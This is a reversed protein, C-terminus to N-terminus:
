WRMLRRLQVGRDGPGREARIVSWRVPGSQLQAVSDMVSQTVGVGDALMIQFCLGAVKEGTVSVPLKTLERVLVM